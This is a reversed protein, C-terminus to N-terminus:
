PNYLKKSDIWSFVFSAFNLEIITNPLDCILKAIVIRDLARKNALYCWKVGGGVVVM